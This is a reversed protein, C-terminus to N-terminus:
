ICFSYCETSSCQLDELNSIDEDTFVSGFCTNFINARILDGHILSGNFDIAPLPSRDVKVHKM